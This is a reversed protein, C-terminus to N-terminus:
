RNFLLFMVVFLSGKDTLTNGTQLISLDSLRLSLAEAEVSSENDSLPVHRDHRSEKKLKTELFITIQHRMSRQALLFALFIFIIQLSKHDNNRAFKVHSIDSREMLWALNVPIISCLDNCIIKIKKANKRACVGRTSKTRICKISFRGFFIGM